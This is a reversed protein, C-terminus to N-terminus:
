LSAVRLNGHHSMAPSFSLCFSFVFSVLGNGSWQSFVGLMLVLLLRRRNGPSSVLARWTMKNAALDAEIVRKMEFYEIEVLEDNEEGEAHYKTLIAKAEEGRGVAVLWRPSEPVFWVGVVQVLAPAAQLLSPIRWAWENPIQFTGFTTWAALTAGAYWSTQYLSTTVQRDKPHSLEGILIPAYANAFVLGFGILFRSVLFM